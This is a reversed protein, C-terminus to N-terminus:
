ASQVMLRRSTGGSDLVEIYGISDAKVGATYTGFKIKGTGATKLYLNKDAILSEINVDPTAYTLRLADVTNVSLTLGAAAATNLYVDSGGYLVIAANLDVNNPYIYLDDTTVGGPYVKTAGAIKRIELQPPTYGM